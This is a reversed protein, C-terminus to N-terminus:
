LRDGDAQMPLVPLMRSQALRNGMIDIYARYRQRIDRVYSVPEIGRVYGHRAKRAYQKRSLLLMAKEVNDFWRDGDWGKARALKRADQVHGHGANYAALSFWLRDNFGLESEFRNRVWDLYKIGAHIGTEADDIDDFGMFRATKPMVQMLGRAGAFSRAEPDFRSEQYMQATILRWDFGYQEAYRQTIADYPSLSGDAAAGRVSLEAVHQPNNFYKKRLINYVLGRYEQKIFADLKDLLEDEGSRVAVAHARKGSLQLGSRVALGRALEIDLLHGDAVTAGVAGRAVAAILAETEMDEPAIDIHLRIGQQQLDVLDQWYPSSRRVTVKRGHLDDIENLEDDDRVVLHRAAFHYPRSFAIGDGAADDYPELYGAALDGAGAQLADILSQSASPVVVELRLRHADAFAKALEYEFGQLEGRYLFYSAANNRMLVRLSRRDRIGQWGGATEAQQGQVRWELHLFRNLAAQLAPADRRVGWAIDDIGPLSFAVRLDDRYGLYMAAVNSDRVSADVDGGAVRDLADEDSIDAPRAVLEIGPSENGRQRMSEWFSTGPNAIVRKGVLDDISEVDTNGNAVLVQKRVTTIPVSFAIRRRRQETVTLNAAILDGRGEVLAPILDTFRSIPVLEPVLGQSRAFGEAAERQATVPWGKRPLYYVGGVNAPILIRLRGRRQLEDLDGVYRKASAEQGGLGDASTDAAAVAPAVPSPVQEASQGDAQDGCGSVLAAVLVACLLLRDPFM